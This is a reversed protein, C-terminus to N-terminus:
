QCTLIEWEYYEGVDDLLGRMMNDQKTATTGRQIELDCKRGEDYHDISADDM